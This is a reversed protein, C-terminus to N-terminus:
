RKSGAPDVDNALMWNMRHVARRQAAPASAM